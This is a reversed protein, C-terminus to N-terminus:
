RELDDPNFEVQRGTLEEPALRYLGVELDPKHEAWMEFLPRKARGYQEIHEVTLEDRPISELMGSAVVSRYVPVSEEYVVLRVKPSSSLFQRKESDPTSVLRLYFVRDTADYGYSIPIAYPDDDRAMSLVGTEQRSLLEDVAAPAMVVEQDITMTEYVYAILATDERKGRPRVREPWAALVERNPPSCIRRSFHFPPVSGISERHCRINLCWREGSPGIIAQIAGGITSISRSLM